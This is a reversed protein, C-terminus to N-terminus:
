IGKLCPMRTAERASAHISIDSATTCGSGCTDGGERLRPNFYHFSPATAAHCRDGGERLRPNFDRIRSHRLLQPQTAERASAHISIEVVESCTPSYGTAERASAHISINEDLRYDPTGDDGGERLRPNFYCKVPYASDLSWDGGERLRPNFDRHRFQESM